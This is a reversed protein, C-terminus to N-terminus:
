VPVPDPVERVGTVEHGLGTAPQPPVLDGLTFTYTESTTTKGETDTVVVRFSVVGMAAVEVLIEQVEPGVETHTETGNITTYVDVKAVDTSVSKTWYLKVDAVHM